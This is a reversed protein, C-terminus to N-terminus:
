WIKTGDIMKNEKNPIFIATLAQTLITLVPVSSVGYAEPCRSDVLFNREPGPSIM